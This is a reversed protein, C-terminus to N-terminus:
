LIKIAVRLLNCFVCVCVYMGLRNTRARGGDVVRTLLGVLHSHGRGQRGILACRAAELILQFPRARSTSPHLSHTSQHHWYRRGAVGGFTLYIMKIQTNLHKTCQFLLFIMKCYYVLSESDCYYVHVHINYVNYM